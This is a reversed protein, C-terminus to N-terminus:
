PRTSLEYKRTSRANTNASVDPNVCCRKAPSGEPAGPDVQYPNRFLRGRCSRQRPTNNRLADNPNHEDRYFPGDTTGYALRAERHGDHVKRWVDFDEPVVRISIAQPMIAGAPTLRERLDPALRRCVRVGALLVPLDLSRTARTSQVRHQGAEQVSFM